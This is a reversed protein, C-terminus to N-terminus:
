NGFALHSGLSPVPMGPVLMLLGNTMVLAEMASLGKVPPLISRHEWMHAALRMIFILCFWFVTTTSFVLDCQSVWIFPSPDFLGVIARIQLSVSACKFGVALFAIVTSLAIALWKWLPRWLQIMSWAQLILVGEILLLQPVAFLTAVVSVRTDVPSIDSYDGAFFTYFELFSSTFYLALLTCRVTTILLAAMNIITAVRFFRSRTTMTLVVLLM